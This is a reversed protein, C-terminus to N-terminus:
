LVVVDDDLCCMYLKRYGPYGQPPMPMGPQGPQPAAQQPSHVQAPAGEQGSAPAAQQPSGQAPPAQGPAAPAGQPPMPASNIFLQSSTAYTVSNHLLMM